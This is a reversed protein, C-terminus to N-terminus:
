RDGGFFKPVIEQLLGLLGERATESFFGLICGADRDFLVQAGERLVAMSSGGETITIDQESWPVEDDHILTCRVARSRRPLDSAALEKCLASDNTHLEVEVKGICIARVFPTAAFRRLLDPPDDLGLMVTHHM